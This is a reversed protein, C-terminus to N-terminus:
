RPYYLALIRESEPTAESLFEALETPSIDRKDAEESLSNLDQEVVVCPRSEDGITVRGTKNRVWSNVEWRDALHFRKHAHLEFGEPRNLPAQIWREKCFHQALQVGPSDAAAIVTRVYAVRGIRSGSFSAYDSILRSARDAFEDEGVRDDEGQRRWFVNVRASSIECHWSGSLSRLIVKPVERPMGDQSPIVTPDADFVAAWSPFFGRMVKSGSVEEEPTWVTAQHTVATFDAATIQRDAM